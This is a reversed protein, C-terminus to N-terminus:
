GRRRLKMNYRVSLLLGIVLFSITLTLPLWDSLPELLITRLVYAGSITLAPLIVLGYFVFVLTRTLFPMRRMRRILAREMIMDSGFFMLISSLLYSTEPIHSTLFSSLSNM